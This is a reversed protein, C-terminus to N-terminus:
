PTLSATNYRKLFESPTIAPVPSHAFDKINRTIILEANWKLACVALLSDEYDAMRTDFAGLCDSKDVAIVDVLEFLRHLVAATKEASRYYKRTLYYIDSATSATIASLIAGCTALVVVEQAEKDFPARSAIADIVINTDLVIKM